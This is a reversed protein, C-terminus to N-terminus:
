EYYSGNSKPLHSESLRIQDEKGEVSKGIGCARMGESDQKIGILQVNM